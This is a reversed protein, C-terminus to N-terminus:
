FTPADAPIADCASVSAPTDTNIIGMRRFYKAQAEDPGIAQGFAAPSIGHQVRYIRPPGAVHVPKADREAELSAIKAKLAAIEDDREDREVTSESQDDALDDNFDENPKRKAM